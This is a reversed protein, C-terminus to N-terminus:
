RINRIVRRKHQEKKIQADSREPPRPALLGDRCTKAILSQASRRRHMAFAGLYIRRCVGARGDAAWPWGMRRRAGVQARWACWCGIYEVGHNADSGGGCAPREDGVPKHPFFCLNRRLQPSRHLPKPSNREHLAASLIGRLEGRQPQPSAPLPLPHFVLRLSFMLVIVNKGECWYDYVNWACKSTTGATNETSLFGTHHEVTFQGHM